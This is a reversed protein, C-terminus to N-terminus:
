KVIYSKSFVAKIAHAKSFAEEPDPKSLLVRCEDERYLILHKLDAPVVTDKAAVLITDGLLDSRIVLLANWIAATPTTALGALTALRVEGEPHLTSVSNAPNAPNAPNAIHSAKVPFSAVKAPDFRNYV